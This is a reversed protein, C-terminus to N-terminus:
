IASEEFIRRIETRPVLVAASGGHRLRVAKLLGLDIYRRVTRKSRRIIEAVEAITLNLPLDDVWDLNLM